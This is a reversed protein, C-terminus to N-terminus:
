NEPAVRRVRALHRSRDWGAAITTVVIVMVYSRLSASHLPPAIVRSITNSASSLHRHVAAREWSRAAVIRSRVADRLSYAVIVGVFTLASLILAPSFDM